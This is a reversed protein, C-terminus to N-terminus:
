FLRRIWSVNWRIMLLTMASVTALLRPMSIVSAVKPHEEAQIQTSDHQAQRLYDRVQERHYLGDLESKFM